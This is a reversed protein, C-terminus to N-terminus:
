KKQDQLLKMVLDIKESLHKETSEIKDTLQNFMQTLKGEYQLELKDIREKNEQRILELDKEWRDQDVKTDIHSRMKASEYYLFAFFVILQGIAWRASETIDFM